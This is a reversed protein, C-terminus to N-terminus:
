RSSKRSSKRSTGRNSRVAMSGKHKMFAPQSRFNFKKQLKKGAAHKAKSVCRGASNLMLDSKVLGSQTQHYVGDYVLRKARGASIGKPVTTSHPRASKRSSSMTRTPTSHFLLPPTKKYTRIKKLIDV